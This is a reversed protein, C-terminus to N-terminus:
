YPPGPPPLPLYGADGPYRYGPPPFVRLGPPQGIIDGGTAKDFGLSEELSLPPPATACGALSAALMAGMAIAITKTPIM